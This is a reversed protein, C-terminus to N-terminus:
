APDFGRDMWERLGRTDYGFDFNTKAGVAGHLGVNLGPFVPFTKAYDFVLDLDPLDYYFLTADGKGMIFDLVTMPDSLIPISFNSGNASKPAKHSKKTTSDKTTLGKQDPGKTTKDLDAKQQARLNQTQKDKDAQ